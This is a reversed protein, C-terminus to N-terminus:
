NWKEGRFNSFKNFRENILEVNLVNRGYLEIRDSSTVSIALKENRTSLKDFRENILQFTEVM